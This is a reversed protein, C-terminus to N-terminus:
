FRITGHDGMDPEADSLNAKAIEYLFKAGGDTAWVEAETLDFRLLAVDPDREGGDFWASAIANWLRHLEEPDEVHHLTGDIRAHLSAEKSSIIYEAPAGGMAAQGLDTQRATIFWLVPAKIEDDIYHSMPVARAGTASLMGFQTDHLRSWFKEQLTKSLPIAKPFYERRLPFPAM